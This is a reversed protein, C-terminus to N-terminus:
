ESSLLNLTKRYGPKSEEDFPELRILKGDKVTGFSHGKWPTSGTSKPTFEVIAEFHSSDQPDFELLDIDFTRTQVVAKWDDKSVQKTGDMCHVFQPHYLDDFPEDIEKPNQTQKLFQFFKRAKKEFRYFDSVTRTKTTFKMSEPDVACGQMFKGDRITARNGFRADEKSKVVHLSCETQSASIFQFREVTVTTGMAMHAAHIGFVDEKTAVKKGDMEHVYDEHYISDFQERFDKPDKPAGDFASAMYSRFDKELLTNM